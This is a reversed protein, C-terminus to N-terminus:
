NFRSLNRKPHAKKALKLMKDKVAPHHNYAEVLTNEIFVYYNNKIVDKIDAKIKLKTKLESKVLAKEFYDLAQDYKKKKMAATAQDCLEKTKLKSIYTTLEPFQKNFQDLVKKTQEASLKNRDDLVMMQLANMVGNAWDHESPESYDRWDDALDLADDWKKQNVYQILLKQYVIQLNREITKDNPMFLNAKQYAYLEEKQSQYADDFALHNSYIVGVLTLLPIERRNKYAKRSGGNAGMQDSPNFGMANTTEVDVGSNDKGYFRCFAHKDVLVGTVKYGMKQAMIGFMLCSSVCNFLGKNMMPKADTANAKYDTFVNKHVWKLLAEGKKDPNSIGDLEKKANALHKDFWANAKKLDGENKYGSAILFADVADWKSLKGDSLDTFFRNEVPTFGTMLKAEAKAGKKKKPPSSACSFLFAMSLLAIAYYRMFYM